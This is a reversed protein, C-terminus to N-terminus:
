DERPAGLIDAPNRGQKVLAVVDEGVLDAVSYSHFSRPMEKERALMLATVVQEPSGGALLHTELERLTVAVKNKHARILCDVMRRPDVRRLRMGVLDFISIRVGSMLARLYLAHFSTFQFFTLLVFLLVFVVIVLLLVSSGGTNSIQGITTTTSKPM